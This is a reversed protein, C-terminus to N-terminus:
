DLRLYQEYYGARHEVGLSEATTIRIYDIYRRNWVPEFISNAFRFMLINQVTEKALYHDIRYVQPERFHEHIARDLEMATQLDRGFPKEVVIRSWGGGDPVEEALGAEGLMRATSQYVTPPISLYFIRNWHTGATQDYEKLKESLLAFSSYETYDIIQYFLRAAIGQWNAENFDSRHELATRMRSRFEDHNWETRACGIILFPDPLGQNLYLNYLSPIVKRATLDGSAGIIVIMCPEPTKPLLCSEYSLGLDYTKTEAVTTIPDNTNM